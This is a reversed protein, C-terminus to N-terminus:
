TCLPAATGGGRLLRPSSGPCAALVSNTAAGPRGPNREEWVLSNLCLPNLTLDPLWQLRALQSALALSASHVELGDRRIPDGENRSVPDARLYGGGGQTKELPSSGRDIPHLLLGLRDHAPTM